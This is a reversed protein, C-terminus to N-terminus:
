TGTSERLAKGRFFIHGSHLLHRVHVGGKRYDRFRCDKHLAGGSRHKKLVVRVGLHGRRGYRFYHGKKENELRYLASLEGKFGLDSGALVGAGHAPALNPQLGPFDKGDVLKQFGGGYAGGVVGADGKRLRNRSRLLGEHLKHVAARRLKPHHVGNKFVAGPEVGLSVKGGGPVYCYHGGLKQAVRIYFVVGGDPHVAQSVALRLEGVRVAENPKIFAAYIQM